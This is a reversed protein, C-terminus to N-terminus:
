DILEYLAYIKNTKMSGNLLSVLLLLGDLNNITYIYANKNRKRSISGHGLEKQILLALPLDKLHFVIQISPYNLSGKASRETKPIHITGDGEILGTIYHAFNTNSNSRNIYFANNTYYKKHYLGYRNNSHSSHFL